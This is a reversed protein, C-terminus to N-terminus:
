GQGQGVSGETARVRLCGLVRRKWHRRWAHLTWGMARDIEAQGLSGEQRKQGVRLGAEGWLKSGRGGSVQKWAQGTAKNELPLHSLM